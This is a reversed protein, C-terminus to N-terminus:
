EVGSARSAAIVSGWGGAGSTNQYLGSVFVQSSDGGDQAAGLYDGWREICNSGGGCNTGPTNGYIIQAFRYSGGPTMADEVAQPTTNGNTRTFVVFINSYADLSVAGFTYDYGQEGFYYTTTVSGPLTSANIRDVEVCKGTSCNQTSSFEMIYHGDSQSYEQTANTIRNDFTGGSGGLVGGPIGVDQLTARSKLAIAYETASVTGGNPAGTVNLYWLFDPLLFGETDITVAKTDAEQNILISARYHARQLNFRYLQANGGILVASEQLVYAISSSGLEGIVMIKDASVTISPQDVFSGPNISYVYWLGAPNSTESVSVKLQNGTEESCVFAFRSHWAFYLVVPDTCLGSQNFFQTFPASYLLTGQNSGSGKTWVNIAFNTTEVVYGSGVAVSPEGPVGGGTTGPYAPVPNGGSRGAVTPVVSGSLVGVRSTAPPLTTSGSPPSSTGVPRPNGLGSPVSTYHNGSVYSHPPAVNTASGPPQTVFGSPAIPGAHTQGSVALLVVMAVIGAVGVRVVNHGSCTASM